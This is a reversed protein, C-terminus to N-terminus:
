PNDIGCQLCVEVWATLAVTLDPGHEPDAAWVVAPSDVQQRVRREGAICGSVLHHLFVNSAQFKCSPPAGAAMSSKIHTTLQQVALARGAELEATLRRASELSKRVRILQESARFLKCANMVMPAADAVLQEGDFMPHGTYCEPQQEALWVGLQSTSPGSECAQWVAETLILELVFAADINEALRVMEHQKCAWRLLPLWIPHLGCRLAIDILATCMYVTPKSALATPWESLPLGWLEPAGERMIAAWPGFRESSWCARQPADQIEMNIRSQVLSLCQQMPLWPLTNQLTNQIGHSSM